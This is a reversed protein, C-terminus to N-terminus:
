GDLMDMMRDWPGNDNGLVSVVTVRMESWYAARERQDQRRHAEAWAHLETWSCTRVTAM